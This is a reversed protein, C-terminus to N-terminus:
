YEGFTVLVLLDAVPAMINEFILALKCQACKVSTLSDPAATYFNKSGELGTCGVQHDSMTQPTIVKSPKMSTWMSALPVSDVSYASTPPLADLGTSAVCVVSSRKSAPDGQLRM